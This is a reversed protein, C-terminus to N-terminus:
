VQRNMELAYKKQCLKYLLILRYDTGYIRRNLEQEFKCNLPINREELHKLINEKNYSFSLDDNAEVYPFIKRTDFYKAEIKGKGLYTGVGLSHFGNYACAINIYDYYYARHNQKDYQFNHTKLWKLINKYRNHNWPSSILSNADLDICCDKESRYGLMVDNMKYFPYVFREATNGRNIELLSSYKLEKRLVDIMFDLYYLEDKQIGRMNQWFAVYAEKEYEYRTDVERQWLKRFM